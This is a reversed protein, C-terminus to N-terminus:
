GAPPLPDHFGIVRRFRGDEALKAVDEGDGRPSGDANVMRWSARVWGHHAELGSTKLFRLGPVQQHVAGLAASIGDLGRAELTPYAIAADETLSRELLRRRVEPDATDWAAVYADM